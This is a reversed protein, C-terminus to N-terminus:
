APINVLEPDTQRFDFYGETYPAAGISISDNTGDLLIASRESVADAMFTSPTGLTVGQHGVGAGALNPLEIGVLAGADTWWAVDVDDLRRMGRGRPYTHWRYQDHAGADFSGRNPM